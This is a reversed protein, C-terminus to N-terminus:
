KDGKGPALWHELKIKSAGQMKAQVGVEYSDRRGLEEIMSIASYLPLELIEPIKYNCHTMIIKIMQALSLANKSKSKSVKAKAKKLKAQIEAAKNSGAKGPKEKESYYPTLCLQIAQFVDETLYRGETIDGFYFVGAESLYTVPEKTFFLFMHFYQEWVIPYHKVFSFFHEFTLPEQSLPNIMLLGINQFLTEYASGLCHKIQIAPIKCILKTFPPVDNYVKSIEFSEGLLTGELSINHKLVYGTSM